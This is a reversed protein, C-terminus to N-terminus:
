AMVVALGIALVDVLLVFPWVIFSLEALKFIPILVLVLAL